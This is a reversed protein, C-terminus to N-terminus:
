GTSGRGGDGGTPYPPPFYSGVAHVETTVVAPTPAPVYPEPPLYEGAVGRPMEDLIRPKAKLFRGIAVGVIACGGLFLLPNTRAFREGEGILVTADHENLYRAVREAREGILETYYGAQAQDEDRLRAGAVRFARAVSGLQDAVQERRTDALSRVERKAREATERAQQKIDDVGQPSRPGNWNRDTEV